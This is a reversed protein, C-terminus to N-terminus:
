YQEKSKAIGMLPKPSIRFDEAPREGTASFPRLHPEM